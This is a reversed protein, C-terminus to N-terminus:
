SVGICSTSNVNCYYCFVNVVSQIITSFEKNVCIYIYMHTRIRYLTSFFLYITVITYIYENSIVYNKNNKYVQQAGSLMECM